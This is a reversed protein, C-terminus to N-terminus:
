LAYKKLQVVRLGTHTVRNNALMRVPIGQSRVILQVFLEDFGVFIFVCVQFLKYLLPPESTKLGEVNGLSLM